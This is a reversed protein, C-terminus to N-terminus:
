LWSSTRTVTENEDVGIFAVAVTDSLVSVSPFATPRFGPRISTGGLSGLVGGNRYNTFEVPGQWSGSAAEADSWTWSPTGGFGGLSAFVRGRHAASSLVANACALSLVPPSGPPNVSSLSWNVENVSLVSKSM